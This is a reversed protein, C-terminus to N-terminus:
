SGNISCGGSDSEDSESEVGDYVCGGRGLPSEFEVVVEDFLLADVMNLAVLEM